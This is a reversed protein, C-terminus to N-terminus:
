LNHSLFHLSDSTLGVQVFIFVNWWGLMFLVQVHINLILSITAM